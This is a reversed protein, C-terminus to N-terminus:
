TAGLAVPQHGHKLKRRAVDAPEAARITTETRFIRGTVSFTLLRLWRIGRSLMKALSVRTSGAGDRSRLGTRHRSHCRERGEVHIVMRVPRVIPAVVTPQITPASSAQSNPM